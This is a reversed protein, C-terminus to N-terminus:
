STEDLNHSRQEIFCMMHVFENFSQIPARIEERTTRLGLHLRLKSNTPGSRPVTRSGPRLVHFKTTGKTCRHSALDPSNNTDYTTVHRLIISM